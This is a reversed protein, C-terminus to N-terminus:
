RQVAARYFMPLHLYEIGHKGNSSSAPAPGPDQAVAMEVAKDTM